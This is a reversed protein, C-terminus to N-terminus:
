LLLESYFVGDDRVKIKYKQKTLPIMKDFDLKGDNLGKVYRRAYTKPDKLVTKKKEKNESNDYWKRFNIRNRESLPRINEGRANQVVQVVPVVPVVPERVEDTGNAVEHVDGAEENVYDIHNDDEIIIRNQDNTGKNTREILDETPEIKVHVLDNPNTYFKLYSRLMVDTSTRMRIKMIQRQRNNIKPFYYSVFASRLVDIGINKDKVIDALWNSVTNPAIKEMKGRAFSFRNVFLHPRPYTTVSFKLLKCLRVNYQDLMSSRMIYRIPKHEKVVENFIVTINCDRNNNMEMEEPTILIYNMNSEIEEESSIFDMKYKELRSPFDWVNMALALHLMHKHFLAPPHKKGDRQIGKPLKNYELDYDDDLKDCVDLLQEYPVFNKIEHKSRIKNLDDRINELDTLAMQLAAFKYRLEHEDKLLLKIIRVLAKFDRNVSAITNGKKNHHNMIEYMLLRNNKIIWSLDDVDRFQRLSEIENTFYIIRKAYTKDTDISNPKKDTFLSVYEGNQMSKSSVKNFPPPPTEPFDLYQIDNEWAIRGVNGMERMYDKLDIFSNMMDWVNDEYLLKIKNSLEDNKIILLEYKELEKYSEVRVQQGDLTGHRTVNPQKPKRPAKPKPQSPKPAPPAKAPKPAPAARPQQSVQSKKPQRAKQVRKSGRNRTIPPM